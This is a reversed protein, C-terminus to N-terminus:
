DFAHESAYHGCYIDKSIRGCVGPEGSHYYSECHCSSFHDCKGKGLPKAQDQHAILLQEAEMQLKKVEERIEYFRKKAEEYTLNSM